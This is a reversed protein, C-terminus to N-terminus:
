ICIKVTLMKGGFCQQLAAMAPNCPAPSFIDAYSLLISCLIGLQNLQANRASVAYRFREFDPFAPASLAKGIGLWAGAVPFTYLSSPRRRLTGKPGLTFPCDLGRVGQRFNGGSAAAFASTAHIRPGHTRIGGRVGDRRGRKEKRFKETAPGARARM